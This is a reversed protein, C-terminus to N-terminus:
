PCSAKLEAIEAKLKENETLTRHLQNRHADNEDNLEDIMEYQEEITENLSAIIAKAKLLAQGWKFGMKSKNQNLM